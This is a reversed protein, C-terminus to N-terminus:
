LLGKLPLFLLTAFIAALPITVAWGLFIRKLVGLDLDIGPVGCHREAIAVGVMSGVLCHSTSVPLEMFSSLLVAVATGLQTCYSRSPTLATIKSGVTSITRSGLALIGIVFAIAGLLLASFPLAPTTEINSTRAIDVMVALPGVANGVDNGGHAFAVTLGAAILLPVFRKQTEDLTETLAADMSAISASEDSHSQVVVQNLTSMVLSKEEPVVNLVPWSLRSVSTKTFFFGTLLAFPLPLLLALWFRAGIWIALQRPGKLMLFLFSIYATSSMLLPQRAEAASAPDEVGMVLKHVGFSVLMGALM